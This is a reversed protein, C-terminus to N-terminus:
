ETIYNNTIKTICNNAIPNDKGREISKIVSYSLLKIKKAKCEEEKLLGAAM